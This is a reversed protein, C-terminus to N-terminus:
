QYGWGRGFFMLPSPPSVIYNSIIYTGKRHGDRGMPAIKVYVRSAFVSIEYAVVM